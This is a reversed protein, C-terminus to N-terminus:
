CHSTGMQYKVKEKPDLKNTTIHEGRAALVSGITVSRIRASFSVISVSYTITPDLGTMKYSRTSGGSVPVTKTEGSGFITIEYGSPAPPPPPSWYVTITSNAHM